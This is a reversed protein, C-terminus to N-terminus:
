RHFLMAEQGLASRAQLQSTTIAQVARQRSTYARETEPFYSSMSAYSQKWAVDKFNSHIGKGAMVTLPGLTIGWFYAQAIPGLFGAARGLLFSAGAKSATTEGVAAAARKMANKYGFLGSEEFMKIAAQNPAKRFIFGEENWLGFKKGLNSITGGKGAGIGEARTWPIYYGTKPARGMMTFFHVAFDWTFMGGAMGLLSPAKEGKSKQNMIYAADDIFLAPNM